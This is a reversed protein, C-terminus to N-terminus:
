NRGMDWSCQCGLRRAWNSERLGQDMLPRAMRKVYGRRVVPAKAWTGLEGLASGGGVQVVIAMALGEDHGYIPAIVCRRGEGQGEGGYPPPAGVWM